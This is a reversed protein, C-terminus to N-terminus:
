EPPLLNHKLLFRKAVNKPLQGSQDVEFNLQQMRYDDLVGSLRNLIERVEPHAILFDEHLVPAAYYPPFFARDDELPKLDYAAIRGDTTFACIVDVERQAAAQYMLSPELDRVEAFSIGYAKRLGPYGDPRASFEPTFGAKLSGASSKLDSIKQWNGSQADSQRVTLAFTNNFGFPELWELQFSERYQKRVTELVSD